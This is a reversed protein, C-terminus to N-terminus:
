FAGARDAAEGKPVYFESSAQGLKMRGAIFLEQSHYNKMGTFLGGLTTGIQELAPGKLSDEAENYESLALNKLLLDQCSM